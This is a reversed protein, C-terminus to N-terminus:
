YRIRHLSEIYSKPYNEIFWVMFETVDIKDILMKEKKKKWEEKLNPKQILEIAKKMASYQDNFSYILGYKQELEILNGMTGALSSIYISPIGMLASETAMTAGEGIYLSAYNMFDHMKEPSVDIQYRKLEKDLKGESTIFVRAYKELEKVLAIKNQVGYQGVDHPAEWSVLRLIIFVDEKNLGVKDLVASNPNFYNPHLYSLEKYGNFRIQKKGLDKNFCSPTCIVNTFPMYLIHEQIAHETDEFAICPKGILRSVHAARISGFGIFIDPKFNKIAKYMKFDIIPINIIKKILSDGYSGLNIYDFGYNDLLKISVDKKTATILIKHGKEKMKWIFNKFLHVDAPHNTDVVINM